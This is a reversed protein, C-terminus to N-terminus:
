LKSLRLAQPDDSGCLQDILSDIEHNGDGQPKEPGPEPLWSSFGSAGSLAKWKQFTVM